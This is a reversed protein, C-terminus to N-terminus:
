FLSSFGETVTTVTAKVGPIGEENNAALDPSAMNLGSNDTLDKSSQGKKLENEVTLKDNGTIEGGNLATETDKANEVVDKTKDMTEKIKNIKTELDTISTQANEMGEKNNESNLFLLLSLVATIMSATKGHTKAVYSIFIIVLVKGLISSKLIM